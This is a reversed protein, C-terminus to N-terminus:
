GQEELGELFQGIEAWEALGFETAKAWLEELSWRKVKPKTGKVQRRFEPVSWGEEACRELWAEREEADLMYVVTHHGHSLHGNRSAPPIRECVRMANSLAPITYGLATHRHPVSPCPEPPEMCEYPCTDIYQWAEEGMEAVWENAQDGARWPHDGKSRTIEQAKAVRQEHTLNSPSTAWHRREIGTLEEAEHTLPGRVPETVGGQREPRASSRARPRVPPLDRDRHGGLVDNDEPADQVTPVEATEGDSEGDGEEKETSPSAQKAARKARRGERDCRRCVRQGRYRHTNEEDYPHGQPCHKKRREWHDGRLTNVSSTVPEIHSPNVCPRNRCLHDCELGQPIPGVLAEYAVRHAPCRQGDVIVQGYGAAPAQATQRTGTWEWCGNELVRVRDWFNPPLRPDGFAPGEEAAESEQQAGAAGESDGSGEEPSAAPRPSEEGNIDKEILTNGHLDLAFYVRGRGPFDKVDNSWDGNDIRDHCTLCLIAVIKSKPNNGGMGKKPFHQHTPKDAWHEVDPIGLCWPIHIEEDKPWPCDKVSCKFRLSQRTVTVVRDVHQWLPHLPSAM